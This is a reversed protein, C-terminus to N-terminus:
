RTLGDSDLTQVDPSRQSGATRGPSRHVELSPVDQSLSAAKMIGVVRSSHKGARSSMSPKSSRSNRNEPSGSFCTTKRCWENPWSRRLLHFEPVFRVQGHVNLVPELQGVWVVHRMEDEDLVDLGLSRRKPIPNRLCVSIPGPRHHHNSLFCQFARQQSSTSPSPGGPRRHLCFAM